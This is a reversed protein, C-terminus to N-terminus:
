YCRTIMILLAPHSNYPMNYSLNTVFNEETRNEAVVEYNIYLCHNLYM